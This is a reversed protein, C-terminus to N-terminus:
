GIRIYCTKDDVDAPDAVMNREYETNWIATIKYDPIGEENCINLKDYDKFNALVKKLDRITVIPGDTEDHLFEAEEIKDESENAIDKKTIIAIYIARDSLNEEISLTKSSFHNKIASRVQFIDDNTFKGTSRLNKIGEVVIRDPYNDSAAFFNATMYLKKASLPKLETNISEAIDKLNEM